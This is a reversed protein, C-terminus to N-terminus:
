GFVRVLKQSALLVHIERIRDESDVEVRLVMKRGARPNKPDIEVVLAPLGNLVAPEVRLIKATATLKTLFRAVKRPTYIPLLAAAFEGGADTLARVDASLLSALNEASESALAAMLRELARQTRTDLQDLPTRQEDYALMARRARLHASKVAEDRTGLCEATEHVSYDLVDRLLLVARQLPTLAELAVLFAFSASERLGYRAESTPALDVIDDGLDASPAPLWPGTYRRVKRRRLLDRSANLTVSVLWPYLPRDTEPPRTLARTFTDQVVDEADAASGTMRYAVHWLARRHRELNQAPPDTM